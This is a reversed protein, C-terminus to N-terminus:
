ARDAEPGGELHVDDVVECAAALALGRVLRVYDRMVPLDVDTWRPGAWTRRLRVAAGAVAVGLRVSDPLSRVADAVLRAAAARDEDCVEPLDRAIIEAALTESTGVLRTDSM